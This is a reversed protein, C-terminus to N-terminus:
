QSKNKEEKILETIIEDAIKTQERLDHESLGLRKAAARWEAPTSLDNLPKRAKM